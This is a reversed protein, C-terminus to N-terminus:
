CIENLAAFGTKLDQMGSYIELTFTKGKLDHEAMLSWLESDKYFGKNNDTHGDNDSVHVYDTQTILARLQEEFDLGLSRCSVKLHAVDLLLNAPTHKRLANYGAEDTVFFPNVGNYNQLNIGSVVNNEVYLKLTQAEQELTSLLQVFQHMAQESNFLPRNAIAKGVEDVPIDMLFGAHFGFKDAGLKKSLEIGRRLHQLSMEAIVPDLSALNVVFNKDPPPFYNHCLYSLQYEKQLSLLDNELEAYPRTGGSLEIATFGDDALKRVAEGITAARVCSSSVYIM